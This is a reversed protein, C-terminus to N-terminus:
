RSCTIFDCINRLGGHGRSVNFCNQSTESFKPITNIRGPKQLCVTRLTCLLMFNYCIGDAKM